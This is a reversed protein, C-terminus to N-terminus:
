LDIRIIKIKNLGKKDTYSVLKDLLGLADRLGGDAFVAINELVEDDIKIKENKCVFNRHAPRLPSTLKPRSM